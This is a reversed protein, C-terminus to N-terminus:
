QKSWVPHIDKRILDYAERERGHGDRVRERRGHTGLEAALTAAEETTKTIGVWGKGSKEALGNAELSRLYKHVTRSVGFTGASTLNEASSPNSLTELYIRYAYKGLGSRNTWVDHGPDELSGGTLQMDPHSSPPDMPAGDLHDTVLHYTSARTTGAGSARLQLYQPQLRALCKRATGKGLGTEEALQRHSVNVDLTGASVAHDVIARYAVVDSSVTSGTWTRTHALLRQGLDSLDTWEHTAAWDIAKAYSRELYDLARDDGYRSCRGRLREGAANAPDQLAEAAEMFDWGAAAMGDLIAMELESRSRYRGNEDGRRLLERIRPTLPGKRDQQVTEPGAPSQAISEGLAIGSLDPWVDPNVSLAELAQQNTTPTLLRPEHGHRHASLPPRIHGSPRTDIGARRALERLYRRHPTSDVWAFLHRHGPAGSAVVVPQVGWEILMQRIAELAAHQDRSDVDLVLFEEAVTIVYAVGEHVATEIDTYDDKDNDETLRWPRSGRRTLRKAISVIEPDSAPPRAEEPPSFQSSERRPCTAKHRRRNITTTM